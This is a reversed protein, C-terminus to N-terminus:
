KHFLFEFLLRGMVAVAIGGTLITNWKLNSQIFGSEVLHKAVIDELAKLRKELKNVM